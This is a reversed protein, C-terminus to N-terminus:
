RSRRRPACGRAARARGTAVPMRRKINKCVGESVEKVAKKGEREVEAPIQRSRLYMSYLATTDSKGNKVPM